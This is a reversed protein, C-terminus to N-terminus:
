GTDKLPVLKVHTEPESKLVVSKRRIFDSIGFVRQTQEM